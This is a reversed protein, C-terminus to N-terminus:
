SEGIVPADLEIEQEPMNQMVLLVKEIAAVAEERTGRYVCYLGGVKENGGISIRLCLPDNPKRQITVHTM